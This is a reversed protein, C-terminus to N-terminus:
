VGQRKNMNAARLRVISLQRLFATRSELWNGHQRSFCHGRPGMDRQSAKPLPKDLFRTLSDLVMSGSTAAPSNLRSGLGLWPNAYYHVGPLFHGDDIRCVFFARLCVNSFPSFHLTEAQFTASCELIRNTSYLATSYM